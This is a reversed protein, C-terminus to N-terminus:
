HRRRLPMPLEQSFGGILPPTRRTELAMGAVPCGGAGGEFASYKENKTTGGRPM